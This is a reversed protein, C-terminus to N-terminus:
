EGDIVTLLLPLLFMCQICQLSVSFAGLPILCPCFVSPSSLPKFESLSLRFTCVAAPLPRLVLTVEEFVSWLPQPSDRPLVLGPMLDQSTQAGVPGWPLCGCSGERRPADGRSLLVRVVGCGALVLKHSAASGRSLRSGEGEQQDPWCPQNEGGPAYNCCSPSLGSVEQTSSGAAINSRGGRPRAHM